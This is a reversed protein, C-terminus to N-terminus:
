YITYSPRKTPQNAGCEFLRVLFVSALAKAGRWAIKGAKKIPQIVNDDIREGLREVENVVPQIINDDIQRGTRRLQKSLWSYEVEIEKGEVIITGTDNETRLENLQAADISEGSLLKAFIAGEDGIADSANLQSDLAHGAEEILVNLAGDFDAELLQENLYITNTEASYAGLGVGDGQAGSADGLTQGDVVDIKPMRSFDGNLTQQRLTEAAAVDYNDGLSQKLLTHFQDQSSAVSTFRTQLVQTLKTVTSSPGSDTSTDNPTSFPSSISQFQDRYADGTNKFQQSNKAFQASTIATTSDSSQINSSTQTRQTLSNQRALSIPKIM